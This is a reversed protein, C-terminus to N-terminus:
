IKIRKKKSFKKEKVKLFNEMSKEVSKFSKEEESNKQM